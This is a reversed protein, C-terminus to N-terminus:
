DGLRIEVDSIGFRSALLVNEALTLTHSNGSIEIEVHRDEIAIVRPDGLHNQLTDGVVVKQTKNKCVIWATAYIPDADVLTAILKADLPIKPVVTVAQPIPEFTPAVPIPESLQRRLPKGWVYQFDQEALIPASISTPRPRAIALPSRPGQIEDPGIEIWQSAALGAVAGLCLIGSALWLLRRISRNPM